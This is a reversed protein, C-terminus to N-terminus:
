SRVETNLTKRFTGHVPMEDGVCLTITHASATVAGIAVMTKMYLHVLQVRRERWAEPTAPPSPMDWPLPWRKSM